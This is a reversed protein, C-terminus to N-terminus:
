GDFIIIDPEHKLVKFCDLLVPGARFTLLRSIYPFTVPLAKVVTELVESGPFSFVAVAGLTKRDKFSIDAGAIVGVKKSPFQLQIRKKLKRQIKIADSLRLRWSHLKLM